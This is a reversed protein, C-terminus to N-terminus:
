HAVAREAREADPQRRNSFSRGTLLRVLANVIFIIVVLMLSVASSHQPQNQEQYSYILGPLVMTTPTVLLVILSLERMASIFTLLMGAVVGSRSMPLIIQWMRRLWGIGQVRATEELSKDIQHLAAIGTRATFPLNKVVTILVLLAFTGYLAPLPGYSRAFIGIYIAGLAISPFIYPAFSIGELTKAMTGGRGRVIAYGVLLGLMGNFISAIFGLKLSNWTAALIGPNHFVGPDGTPLSPTYTGVWFHFSLNDLSYNNAQLMLSEWLLIMLPFAVVVAMFLVVIAVLPWRWAGLLVPRRRFGKGTMTVFSKRVGVIRSNIHIFLVAMVVLVLALMFGDGANRSKLAAYIQTSFTFFRVPLGLLAPTGFTGLVRIFTMVIASGLAPLLLPITIILLRKFRPIGSVAGAEDLESDVTEMAGGMLLFAYAYYHLALCVIIPLLGYSFWNAPEIGFFYTIMGDGGGYRENRFLSLWALALVWSPMMYPIVALFGFFSRGPLDTRTMLWALGTGITVALVTVGVGVMLSNLFPRYFLALSLPGTFVREFHFLTFSGVEAGRRYALDYPQYSFADRIAELLPTIVLLGLVVTLVTGLVLEPRSSLRRVAFVFRWGKTGATTTM